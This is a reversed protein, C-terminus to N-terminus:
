SVVTGSLAARAARCADSFASTQLFSASRNAGDPVEIRAAVRGPGPSLVYIVDALYVAEEVSHTVFLVPLQRSSKIGHVLDNLARRGLEDIAAFPEDLLLVDPDTVLARALAVRMRMGGSLTSPKLLASKALGVADLAALARTTAAARSIGSLELPLAVNAAASAWPMLTPDQFVMGAPRALGSVSGSAPKLLGAVISLLTSKGCGSPGLLVACQGPDVQLSVPGLVQRGDFAVCVDNILLTSAATVEIDGM